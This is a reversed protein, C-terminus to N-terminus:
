YRTWLDKAWGEADHLEIGEKHSTHFIVLHYDDRYKFPKLDDPYSAGFSYAYAINKPHYKIMDYACYFVFKDFSNFKFNFLKENSKYLDYIPELQNDNWTVFSSNIFCDGKQHTRLIRDYDSWHNWIFRPESFKYKNFYVLLDKQIILDLDLLVYPGAFPLHKFLDIKVLTFIGTKNYHPLTTIPLCQCELGQDNDTICYFEFPGSYTHQLSRYLRNVYEPGYKNGWKLTLFKVVM